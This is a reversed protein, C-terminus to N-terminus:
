KRDGGTSSTSSGGIALLGGALVGAVPEYAPTDTIIKWISTRESESTTQNYKAAITDDLLDDISAYMAQNLHEPYNHGGLVYCRNDVVATSIGYCNSPLPCTKHWQLTNLNLVEVADTNHLVEICGGAVVLASQLNLVGSALRATPMSPLTQKWRQSKESYNYLDNTKRNNSKRDGGIAVLESNVQALTSRNVPPPPLITWNDHSPDYCYINNNYEDGCYVKGNITTANAGCLSRPLDACQKWIISVQM